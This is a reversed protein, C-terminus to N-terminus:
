GLSRAAQRLLLAHQGRTGAPALPPLARHARQLSEHTVAEPLGTLIIDAATTMAHERAQATIPSTHDMELMRATVILMQAAYSPETLLVRLAVDVPDPETREM